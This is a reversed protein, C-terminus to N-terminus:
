SDRPSPSTYLLCSGIMHWLEECLYPIFPALLRIWVDVVELLIKPNPNETRRLYWRIDNWIEFLAIEAATRTKLNEIADTVAKIRRQLVSIM